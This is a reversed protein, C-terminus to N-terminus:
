RAGKRLVLLEASTEPYLSVPVQKALTLGLPTALRIVYAASHGFRGTAAVLGFGDAGSFPELTLALLGGPKLLRAVGKLVDDLAGVFQAANVLLVLDASEAAVEDGLASIDAAVVRDYLKKDGQAQVSAQAVMAPVVDVGIMQASAARYPIAAIGTGCGLEVVVMGAPPLLPKVAEAVAVGGHYQNAAEAQNYEAAISTFFKTVMEPPMRRPRQEPTLASPEIAAVMFIADRHNPTERLVQKLTAAAQPLKGLHFYCCGLNYRAEPYDPRWYLAMRFRFLADHWKGQDAFMCGLDFNTKPLDRIKERAELAWARPADVFTERLMKEAEGVYESISVRKRSPAM